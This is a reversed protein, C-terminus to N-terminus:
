NPRPPEAVGILIVTSGVGCRRLVPNAMVIALRTAIANAVKNGPGGAAKSRM